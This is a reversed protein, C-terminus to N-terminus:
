CVILKTVFDSTNEVILIEINNVPTGVALRDPVQFFFIHFSPFMEFSTFSVKQPTVESREAKM